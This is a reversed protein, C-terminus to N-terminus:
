KRKWVFKKTEIGKGSEVKLLYVGSSANILAITNEIQTTLASTAVLKGNMDYVMAKAPLDFNGIIRVLNQEPIPVVKVASLLSEDIASVIENTHLYFRGTGISATNLSVTYSSNAEALPTFTGTEKDELVVKYGVPLNTATAKFTVKAGKDAVLGVPVVMNEYNNDPLAQVTFDVGNAEILRTFLSFSSAIGNFLGADKGPDLGTTAGGVYQVITGFKGNGDEVTLQITPSDVIAAKFADSVSSKMAATFNVTGGGAKTKVFFGEGSALKLTPTNPDYGYATVDAVKSVYIFQYSPDLLATNETLFVAVDLACPYPNGILNWGYLSKTVSVNLNAAALTGKFTLKGDGGGTGKGTGAGTTRLVQFGKAPSGFLGSTNSGSVKYYDWLGTAELWPALAYNTSNRAVLNNNALLVFSAVTEGTTAAPSILHWIDGTVYREVTGLVGATGNILSGTGDSAGSTSLVVLGTIGTNNTLTGNVTIAKGVPITLIAGVQITLDKCVAPIGNVIPDNTLDPIVVDDTAMPVKAPNWNGVTNWDTSAAGTWTLNAVYTFGALSATEGPTTVSVSGTTGSAVVATISTASVVSYSTAATGGFSVATAGTFNTGTITVTAGTAASTPTFTTISPLSIQKIVSVNNNGYNTAALDPKGDGDIDVISVSYPLSGTGFDAKDAFSVSGSISTNRLVSVTNSGYNAVALDPKGDGDLDGISVSYPNTGTAFDVKVAFSGSTISGSTSTNRLVSVNNSGKNAVALDPKGDGDLDGISVSYPNAGTAFDVKTAFSVTGASSTNRLISVTNSGNNAVALDRKGDGDIDGINVSNPFTGTTFDVKAAFSVTGSSSTNRFVSVKDSFANAVALDPKGDGNLDGISVSEPSSGATFDVKAEFSVSGSSSTNRLVSVTNSGYNAVALDPKGDGDVDGISVSYPWIGTSFDVKAAFSVTGSTSTNRLVSVTNSGNNALALDPKGDGDLDGISVSYPGTGTAYDAKAVFAINGALTVLFPKASYATLGAALNTVSLCQYTAGLPVTVTLSTASAATVVAQTAGFFVINQAVTANFGTGTITVNSGIAGSAPSFSTITPVPFVFTFGTLTATVGQTTVSVSGTTGSAVVATISTASVVSFSTAATGGFSVSTAGTFKTGTITVTAGTTASTPSFSTITPPILQRIVSVTNDGVNAVALDPKGDGDLDGISVSYPYTGPAFDAKAAFSVSGLTSTNRLVSVNNDGYNVVALDPKGDGNIDGISVSRPGSGTAFDDKAAFSVTGSTSTNRLVSVNDDTNNAVALDPRGDGDLDGISVSYPYTGTAFDVKVAFSVTGLTSTNRLVSVNDDSNNAVALDPRGDGDLDGISVSVPGSGTAFDAKAAFNLSGSTSTNRLVSVTSSNCSAVALDPKGDGDLDGISVSYPGFGTAFDAKAAFSVAGSTSTNRFVSVTNSGYNVMALEPKGDGNLDGISVSYPGTGTAFDAKVAFSIAGSTTTNRLVSVSNSSFNAVALDPKGDGDLDGISVSYSGSGTTYDAKAVFAINGALTVMFPKASYATLWTGLNTVSLCQYTAGLPVTVTLSTASAATVTAKTAGFFVINQAATANFGSGTITVSSGIAGTAPSFTTISIAASVMVSTSGIVLILVFIAIIKKM